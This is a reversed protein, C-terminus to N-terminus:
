LSPSVFCCIRGVTRASAMMHQGHPSSSQSVRHGKIGPLGPTGPFGRAGQPFSFPNSHIRRERGQKRKDGPIPIVGGRRSVQPGSPGREGGRGPKGSEGQFFSCLPCM